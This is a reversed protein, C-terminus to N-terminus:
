YPFQELWEVQQSLRTREQATVGQKLCLKLGDHAEKLHLMSLNYRAEWYAPNLELAREWAAQASEFQAEHFAINGLYYWAETFHPAQKLLAKLLLKAEAREGAKYHAIATSFQSSPLAFAEGNFRTGTGSCGILLLSSLIL